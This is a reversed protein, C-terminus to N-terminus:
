HQATETKPSSMLGAGFAAAGALLIVTASVPSMRLGLISDLSLKGPGSTMLALAIITNTLPLEAGGESAWIPKDAHAKQTAMIMSGLIGVPGLPFALGLATLVGSSLETAGAAVAWPVGPRLGISELWQGTGLPGRGGWWSFLKQAGHGVMLSGLGMRLILLGLDHM